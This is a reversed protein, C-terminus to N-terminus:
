TINTRETSYINVRNRIIKPGGYRELDKNVGRYHESQKLDTKNQYIGNEDKTVLKSNNIVSPREGNLGIFNRWQQLWDSDM